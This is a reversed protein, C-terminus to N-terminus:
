SSPRNKTSMALASMRRSRIPRGRSRSSRGSSWIRSSCRMTASRAPIARSVVLSGPASGPSSTAGPSRVGADSRSGVSRRDILWARSGRELQRGLEGDIRVDGAPDDALEDAALQALGTELPGHEPQRAADVRREDGEERGLGDARVLQQAHQHRVPRRRRGRPAIGLLDDPPQAAGGLEDLMLGITSPKKPGSVSADDSRRPLKMARM